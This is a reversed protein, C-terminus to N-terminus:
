FANGEGGKEPLFFDLAKQIGLEWFRWEHNYGPVEEFEAAFGVKEAYARFKKFNEYMIFDKDGCSFAFRPLDKSGASEKVKDWTNDPSALYAELGGANDLQNQTRYAWFSNKNFDRIDRPCSSLIYAAEFLQPHNIAYKFAGIGGMSLGCIFNDERKDSAPLWGYILPMLEETLYDYMNFGMGFGQWNSYDSNLGSPMVVILERECAYLEINSRRIWDSSDGFTGHLLWLVPYKKGSRYFDAAESGRKLDPMIVNVSTNGFLCSSQFNLQFLAM